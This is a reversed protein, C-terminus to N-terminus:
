NSNYDTINNFVVLTYFIAVGFVLLIKVARLIM